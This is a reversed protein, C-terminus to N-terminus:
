FSLRVLNKVESKKMLLGSRLGQEMEFEVEYENLYEFEFSNQEM